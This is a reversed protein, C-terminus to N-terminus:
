AVARRVPAPMARAVVATERHRRRFETPSMGVKRRFQRNFNALNNFGVGYCIELVQRDDGILMECARNLRIANVYHVFTTGTKRRFARAFSSPSYGSLLALDAERLDSTPNSAIHALVHNLPQRGYIEPTPRHGISALPRPPPSRHLLSLLSFFLAIRRPGDCDMMERMLPRAAAGTAADFELGRHAQALLAALFALEPMLAICGEALSAPFQLILGREPVVAGAPVESLWNHPVNPGILVLNDPEFRGVYDGVFTRGSTATILHIECEPHFHWRVTHYPLGHSWAAFCADPRIDVLELAPQTTM